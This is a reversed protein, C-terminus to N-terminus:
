SRDPTLLQTVHDPILVVFLGRGQWLSDFGTIHM